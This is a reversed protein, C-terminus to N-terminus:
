WRRMMKRPGTGEARTNKKRRQSTASWAIRPSAAGAPVKGLGGSTAGAPWLQPDAQVARLVLLAPLEQPQALQGPPRGPPRQRRGPDPLLVQAVPERLRCRRVPLLQGLPQRVDP